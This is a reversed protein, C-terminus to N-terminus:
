AARFEFEASYAYTEGPRLICNPFNPKNPSDPYCQTELCMGSNKGYKAGDIGKCDTLFNGTYFQCGAADSSVKMTIGSKDGTLVAMAKMVGQDGFAFNNDYGKEPFDRRITKAERFDLPTGAVPLIEGTTILTDDVPTFNEAFVQLTHDLITGNGQGNLNTYWHNTLNVPTAKDTQAWYSIIMRNDDTLTFINKATLNGPYNEDGDPSFLTFIVQNEPENVEADWLLKDFPKFGGHLHNAGDNKALEYHVGDLDFCAKGIRNGYRGIGSGFHFTGNVYEELTDYGLSVNLKKGNADPVVVKRLIAGYTLVSIEMGGANTLIYEYVDTGNLNGFLRKEIM